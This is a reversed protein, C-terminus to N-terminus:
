RSRIASRQALSQSAWKRDTDPSCRWVPGGHDILPGAPATRRVEDLAEGGVSVRRAPERTGFWPASVECPGASRETGARLRPRVRLGVPSALTDIPM